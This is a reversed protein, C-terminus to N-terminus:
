PGLTVPHTDKSSCSPVVSSARTHVSSLGRSFVTLFVTTQLGGHGELVLRATGKIM